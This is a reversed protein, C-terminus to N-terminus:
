VPNTIKMPATAAKTPALVTAVFDIQALRQKNLAWNLKAIIQARVIEIKGGNKPVIEISKEIIPVSDPASWVKPPGAAVTGGFYAQLIDADIDYCSWTLTTKGKESQVTYVPDDQEEIKFEATQGEETALVCTDSVTNGLAVLTTGMGGDGAIAGLKISTLGISYKPM